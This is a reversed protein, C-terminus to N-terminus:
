LSPLYLTVSGAPLAALDIDLRGGSKSLFHRAFLLTLERPRLAGLPAGLLADNSPLHGLGANSGMTIVADPGHRGVALRLEASAPTEEIGATLLGVLLTELQARDVSIRVEPTTSISVTVYKTAAENRLLHAVQNVLEALDVVTPPNSQLSLVQLVDLTTKEHNSIARRALDCAKEVREPNAGGLRASRGLLEFASFLAQM